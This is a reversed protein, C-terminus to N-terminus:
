RALMPQLMLHLHAPTPAGRGILSHMRSTCSCFPEVRRTARTSSGASAHQEGVSSRHERDRWHPSRRAVAASLARRVAHWMRVARSRDSRSPRTVMAAARGSRDDRATASGQTQCLDSASRCHRSGHSSARSRIPAPRLPGRSHLSYEPPRPGRILSSESNVSLMRINRM